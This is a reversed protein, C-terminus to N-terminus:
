PQRERALDRAERLRDANAVGRRVEEEMMRRLQTPTGRLPERWAHLAPWLGAESMADTIVALASWDTLEPDLWEGPGPARWSGAIAPRLGGAPTADLPHVRPGCYRHDEGTIVTCDGPMGCNVCTRPFNPSTTFVHHKDEGPRRVWAILRDAVQQALYAPLNALHAGELSGDDYGHERPWGSMSRYATHHILPVQGLCACMVVRQPCAVDSWDPHCATMLGVRGRTSLRAWSRRGGPDRSRWLHATLLVARTAVPVDLRCFGPHESM